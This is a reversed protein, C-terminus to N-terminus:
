LMKIIEEAIQKATKDTADIHTYADPYYFPDPSEFNLEKELYAVRKGDPAHTKHRKRDPSDAREIRVDIPATLEIFQVEGGHEEYIKKFTDMRERGKDAAFNWAYTFILNIGTAAAEEIVQTRILKSLKNESPTAMGFIHIVGDMIMHNHFLKYDTKSELIQGVTTKGVAPPGFLILLKM